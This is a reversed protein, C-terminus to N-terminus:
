EGFLFLIPIIQGSSTQMEVAAQHVSPSALLENITYFLNLYFSNQNYNAAYSRVPIIKLLSSFISSNLLILLNEGQTVSNFLLTAFLPVTTQKKKAPNEVKFFLFFLQICVAGFVSAFDLM